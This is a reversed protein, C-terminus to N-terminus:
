TRKIYSSHFDSVCIMAMVSSPAIEWTRGFYCACFCVFLYFRPQPRLPRTIKFTVYILVFSQRFFSLFYNLCFKKCVFTSDVSPHLVRGRLPSTLRIDGVKFEDNQRLSWPRPVHYFRVLGLASSLLVGEAPQGHKM